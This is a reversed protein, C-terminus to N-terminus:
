ITRNCVVGDQGTFTNKYEIGDKERDNLIIRRRLENAVYSLLGPYANIGYTNSPQSSSSSSTTTDPEPQGRLFLNSPQQQSDTRSCPPTPMAFSSSSRSSSGNHKSNRMRHQLSTPAHDSCTSNSSHHGNSPTSNFCRSLPPPTVPFVQRRLNTM